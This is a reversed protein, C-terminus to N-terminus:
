DNELGGYVISEEELMPVMGERVVSFAPSSIEIRKAGADIVRRTLEDPIIDRGIRESQWEEYESIAKQVNTKVKEVEGRKSESIFYKLKVKYKVTEPAKVMIQDTLMKIDDRSLYRTVGNIWEEKPLENNALIAMIQVVRESPSSILIDKVTPDYKRVYYEYAGKSGASTYSEPALYIRERLDEDNETDRGNQAKTVNSVADVYPVIDVMNSIEGAAYRNGEAGKSMCRASVDVYTDGIPIEAYEETAFFIGDGATVRAGKPISTTSSRMERMSYRLTVTAGEAPQRSVGKMAGLNELYEGVAYKLSNMKGNFEIQKMGIFTIYAVAQLMLRQWNAQQLVREKGTVEAYKEEYWGIIQQEWKDLNWDGIFSIDPYDLLSRIRDEM